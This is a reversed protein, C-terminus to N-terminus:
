VSAGPHSYRGIGAPEIALETGQIVSIVANIARVVAFTVLAQEFAKDIHPSAHEDLHQTSGLVILGALVGTLFWRTKNNTPIKM